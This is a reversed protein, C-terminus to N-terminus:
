YFWRREKLWSSLKKVHVLGFDRYPNSGPALPKFDVVKVVRGRVSRKKCYPVFYSHIYYSLNVKLIFSNKNEM